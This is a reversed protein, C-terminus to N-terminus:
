DAAWHELVWNEEGRLPEVQWSCRKWNKLETWNEPNSKIQKPQQQLLRKQDPFCSSWVAVASTKPTSLVHQLFLRKFLYLYSLSCATLWHASTTWKRTASLISIFQWKTRLSLFHQEPQVSDGADCLLWNEDNWLNALRDTHKLLDDM